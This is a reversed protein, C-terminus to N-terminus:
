LDVVRALGLEYLDPSGVESRDGAVIWLRALAVSPRPARETPERLSRVGAPDLLV